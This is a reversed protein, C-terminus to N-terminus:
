NNTLSYYEEIKSALAQRDVTSLLADKRLTNIIEELLELSIKYM